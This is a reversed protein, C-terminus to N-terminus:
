ATASRIAPSGSWRTPSPASQAAPTARRPGTSQRDPPLMPVFKSSTSLTGSARKALPPLTVSLDRAENSVTYAILSGNYRVSNVKLRMTKPLRDTITIAGTARAADGNTIIIRYQVADGPAAVAVSASKRLALAEGPKDIPVDIRVPAPDNLLFPLGYSGAVLTFPLGDSRLLGALEAPPSLSPATYPGPPEVVVRYRGPSVFPFRYDGPPFIYVAGSADTVTSGTVVTSPFRSVADDGYVYVIAPQGTSDDILTVRVGPVPTGDGSDFVVGYPDILIDIPASGIATGDQERATELTLTDGPKLSLLCDGSVGAPPVAATRIVGVFYSTDVGSEQLTLTETDGAPTKVTITLADVADPRINDLVSAIGIVLPEGARVRTTPEVTAPTRLLRAFAGELEVRVDGGTTRCMTPPVPLLIAGPASSFQFISLKPIITTRDVAIDVQNSAKVIKTPGVQWEIAATNSIIQAHVPSAVVTVTAALSAIIAKLHKHWNYM